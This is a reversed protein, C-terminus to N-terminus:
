QLSTTCKQPSPIFPPSVPLFVNSLLMTLGISSGRGDTWCCVSFTGWIGSVTRWTPFCCHCSPCRRQGPPNCETPLSASFLHVRSYIRCYCTHCCSRFFFWFHPLAVPSLCGTLLARTVSQPNLCVRTSQKSRLNNQVLKKVETM